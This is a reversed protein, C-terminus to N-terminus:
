GAGHWEKFCMSYLDDADMGDIGLKASAVVGDPLQLKDSNDVMNQLQAQQQAKCVELWRRSESFHRESQQYLFFGVILVSVSITAAGVFNTINM